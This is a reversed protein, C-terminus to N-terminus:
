PGRPIVSSTIGSAEAVTGADVEGAGSRQMQRGAPRSCLAARPAAPAARGDHLFVSQLSKNKGKRHKDWREVVETGM